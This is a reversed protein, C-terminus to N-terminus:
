EHWTGWLRGSVAAGSFIVSTSVALFAILMLLIWHVHLVALIGLVVAGIGLLVQLAAASAVGGRALMQQEREATGGIMRVYNMKSTAGCTLLLAGGFVIAAVPLLVTEAMGLLTLLGLVIGAGGALFGVTIGSGLEASTSWLGSETEHILHTYRAGIAWGQMLLALGLVICAIASLAIGEIGALAVISLVLAAGGAVTEMMSSSTLVEATKHIEAASEIGHGVEQVQTTM